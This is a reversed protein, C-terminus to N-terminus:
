QPERRIIRSIDYSFSFTPKWVYRNLATVNQTKGLAAGEFFDGGLLQQKGAFVGMTMFVKRRYLNVSGGLLYEIDFNNDTKKGTVGTTFYFDHRGFNTLRSHLLLLPTLRFDSSSTQGVIRTLTRGNTLNGQRDRAFGVVEDYTRQELSTFALGLALNFPIGGIRIESKLDDTPKSSAPTTGPAAANAKKTRSFNYSFSFGPKWTLSKRYLKADGITDPLADGVAVDPVLKQTQGGYVGFTFFARDNLLSVSPGFLYEIDFNGDHKASVGWSFYLNAPKFNTLRTNLLVMPLLRRSSNEGFGVVDASGNGTPNGQADRAFGKVSQFTRRPLPSYVLGGSLAFRPQGIQLVENIQGPPALNNGAGQAPNNGGAPAAGGGGQNNSTSQNNGGPNIPATGDSGGGGSVVPQPNGGNGGADGNQAGQGSQGQQEPNIKVRAVTINAQTLEFKKIITSTRAFLGEKNKMQETLRYMRQMRVANERLATIENVYVTLIALAEDAYAEFQEGCDFGKCRIVIKNGNFVQDAKFAPDTKFSTALAKLDQAVVTVESLSKAVTDLNALYADFNYNSLATNLATAAACTNYADAGEDRLATVAKAYDEYAGKAPTSGAGALLSPITSTKIATFTAAYPGGGGLIGSSHVTTFTEYMEGLAICAPPKDNNPDASSKCMPPKMGNLRDAIQSLKSPTTFGEAMAGARGSQLGPLTSLNPPLLLKLFDTLATTVLEEQAVTIRYDYAFPNMHVVSFRGMRGSFSLKGTSQNIAFPRADIVNGTQREIAIWAELQPLSACQGIKITNLPPTPTPTPTAARATLGTGIIMVFLVVFFLASQIKNLKPM